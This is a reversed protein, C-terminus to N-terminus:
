RPAPAVAGPAAPAERPAIPEFIRRFIGPTLASLPNVGVKADEAPGKMTYTIGVVGEGRRSALLEGLLPVNSIFSNLGYSPVVVGDIAMVGTELDVRGKATLGLSPGSMRCEGLTLRGDAYTVPAELTTFAIGEGSMLDAMGQLSGVTSLLRAMMPMNVLQFDSMALKLTATSPKGPYWEGAARATGGRVNDQGTVGLWAFGADPAQFRIAGPAGPKPGPEIALTVARGSPDAGVLDLKTLARGNTAFGIRGDRLSVGSNFRLENFSLRAEIPTAADDLRAYAASADVAAADPPPATLVGLHLLRGRGEVQMVGTQSLTAKFAGAARDAIEIKRGDVSLLRGDKAVVLDGSLQLGPGRAELATIAASEADRREVGFTVTATQGPKKLYFGRPLFATARTLDLAVKATEVEDGTGAGEVRLDVEGQAFLAIPYGLKDIEAAPLRADIVYRSTPGEVPLVAETWRVAATGGAVRMPGEFTLANQDGHVHLRWDSLTLKADKSRGSVAEFRGDVTYLHDEIPAEKLLPRRLTFDIRGVGGITAPEFPLRADLNLPAQRLLEVVARAEGVARAKFTAQAGKPNLRPMEIRGENLALPGIAAQDMWVDFRNGKLTARGRGGTIPTMGEVYIAEAGDFVFALDLARDPLPNQGWIAPTLDVTLAVSRVTGAKLSEAAWTRATPGVTLPWYRLVTATDVAGEAGGKLSLGPRLVGGADKGLYLAGALTIAVGEAQASARSLEIRRLGPKVDGALQVNLFGVPEALVGPMDLAISPFSLAFPATESESARWLRSANELRGQGRVRTRAGALAAEEIVFVDERIDYRGRVRGGDLPAQGEPLALRGRGVAVDAELRSVGDKRALAASVAATVPADLMKVPGLAEQPLLGALRADKVEAELVATAFATDTIASFRAPANAGPGMLLGESALRLVTRERALTASAEALEWRAGSTEDIVTVVLDNLRIERLAGGPGIPRLTAELGDLIRNVRQRLTENPPPPPIRIDPASGPPGFAIEAGGDAKLAITAQAGLFTARELALRGVILARLSIGLTVARSESLVRGDDDLARVGLANVELARSQASWGVTVTQIQVPRGGRAASLQTEFLHQLSQLEIPGSALRWWLLGLGLAVAAVLGVVVELLILSSRRIM